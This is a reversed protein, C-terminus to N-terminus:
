PGVLWFEITGLVLAVLLPLALPGVLIALVGVLALAFRRPVGQQASWAYACAILAGSLYAVAVVVMVM